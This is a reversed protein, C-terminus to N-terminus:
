QSAVNNAALRDEAAVFAEFMPRDSEKFVAVDIFPTGPGGPYTAVWDAVGQSTPRYGLWRGDNDWAMLLTYGFGALLDVFGAASDGNGRLLTDDVESFVVPGLDRLIAQSGKLVKLDFGDTDTKLLAIQQFDYEQYLSDLPVTRIDSDGKVLKGTGKTVELLLGGEEGDSLLCCVVDIGGLHGVNRTLLEAFEAAGEVAVIRAKIGHGRLLAVGDGINAGVDIVIGDRVALIAQVLRVYNLNSGIPRYRWYVAPHALPADIEVRGFRIRTLEGTRRGRSQLVRRLTAFAIRNAPWPLKMSMGLAQDPLSNVM